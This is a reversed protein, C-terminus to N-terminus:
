VAKFVMNINNDTVLTVEWGDVFADHKIKLLETFTWVNKTYILVGRLYFNITYLKNM